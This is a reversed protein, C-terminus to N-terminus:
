RKNPGIKNVRTEDQNEQLMAEEAQKEEGSSPTYQGDRYPGIPFSKDSQAQETEAQGKNNRSTDPAVKGTGSTQASLTLTLFSLVFPALKM